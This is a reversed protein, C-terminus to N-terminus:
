EARLDLHNNEETWLIFRFVPLLRRMEAIVTPLFEPSTLVPDTKPWRRRVNLWHNGPTYSEFFQLLDDRFLKGCRYEKKWDHLTLVYGDLANLLKLLEALKGADRVAHKANQGEWWAAPHVRLAVGVGDFDISLILLLQQYSPDLDEGLDEGFLAKLASRDKRSLYTWMESVCFANFRYPHHLSSKVVLNAGDEARLAAEIGKGMDLLRRKVILRDGNWAESRWKDKEFAKFDSPEFSVVAPAKKAPSM